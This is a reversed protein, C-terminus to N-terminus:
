KSQHFLAAAIREVSGQLGEPMPVAPRLIRFWILSAVDSLTEDDAGLTEILANLERDPYIVLRRSLDDMMGGLLCVLLLTEADSLPSGPSQRLTARMVREHWRMNHRQVDAAFEPDEDAVQYLCRLLGANARAYAFWLRNAARVPDFPGNRQPDATAGPDLGFFLTQFENLVHHTIDRKDTFYLYFSGESLGAESSVDGAKLNHFGSRDLLRACAIKLRERTRPGKQRPPDNALRWELRDIFSM